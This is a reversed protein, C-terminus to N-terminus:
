RETIVQESKSRDRYVTIGKCGLDYAMKYIKKVDGVTADTPLNITKSVANDFYKQVVAQMKLHQEPSIEHATEFFPSTAFKHEMNVYRKKDGGGIMRKWKRFFNPEIGPSCGAILSITGTPAQTNLAINRMYKKEISHRTSFFAPFNGRSKGLMESAIYSEKQLFYVLKETFELAEPSSYKIGKCILLDALGMIGLGIRRNEKSKKDMTKIPFYNVDHVNDLFKVSSHIINKFKEWFHDGCDEYIKVLNISGLVCFEEFELPEEGCPNVCNIESEFKVDKERIREMFILGPDGTKWANLCAENFIKNERSGESGAVNLKEFFEGDVTISINFNNLVRNGSDKVKIFDFIDKHTYDLLGMMASYRMGGQRIIDGVALDYIKMFGIPGCSSGRHSIPAGAPRLNSFNFGVGCGFSQNIAADRLVNFISNLNDEIPGLANCAMFFGKGVGAHKLLPSNPLFYLNYIMDYFEKSDIEVTTSSDANPTDAICKSVRDCLETWTEDKQLYRQELINRAIEPIFDPYREIM